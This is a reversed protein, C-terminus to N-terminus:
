IRNAHCPCEKPNFYDRYLSLIEGDTINYDRLSIELDSVSTSNLIENIKDEDTNTILGKQILYLIGKHTLEEVQNQHPEDREGGSVDSADVMDDLYIIIPEDEEEELLYGTYARAFRMSPLSDIDEAPDTKIRIKKLNTDALSEKVVRTFRSM